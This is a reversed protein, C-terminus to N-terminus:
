MGQEIRAKRDLEHKVGSVEIFFEYVPQPLEPSSIEYREELYQLLPDIWSPQFEHWLDRVDDDTSLRNEIETLDAQQTLKYWEVFERIIQAGDNTINM